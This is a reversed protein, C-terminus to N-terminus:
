QSTMAAKKEAELKQLEKLREAWAKERAVAAM